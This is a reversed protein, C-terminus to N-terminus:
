SGQGPTKALPYRQAVETLVMDVLQDAPDFTSILKRDFPIPQGEDDLLLWDVIALEMLATIYHGYRATVQTTNASVVGGTEVLSDLIMNREGLTLAPKIAIWEGDLEIRVPAGRVFHSRTGM